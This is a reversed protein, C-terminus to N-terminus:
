FDAFDTAPELTNKESPASTNGEVADGFDNTDNGGYYVVDIIRVAKIRFTVGKNGGTNYPSMNISVQMKTGKGVLGDPTFPENDASFMTVKTEKKGDREPFYNLTAKIIVNGTPNGEEDLENKIPLPRITTGLDDAVAKHFQNAQNMFDSMNAKPVILDVKFKPTYSGDKGRDPMGDNINIWSSTGIPTTIQQPKLM